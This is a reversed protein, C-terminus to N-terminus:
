LRIIGKQKSSTKCSCYETCGCALREDTSEEETTQSDLYAQYDPFDAINNELFNKIQSIHRNAWSEQHRLTLDFAQGSPNSQKVFSQPELKENQVVDKGELKVWHRKMGEEIAFNAVARQILQVLSQEPANLAKLLIGDKLADFQTQGILPLIAFHEIDDILPRLFDFTYRALYQSYADRFETAYNLFLSKNRQYASSAQWLPYDAENAELFKLMAELEEYGNYLMFESYDNEQYKFASKETESEVRYIGAEGFQIGGIKRYEYMSLMALPKQVYPLLAERTSGPNDINDVLDQWQTESLWHFLHNRAATAITPALSEMNLGVNAGGGIFQKLEQIDQFIEYAM